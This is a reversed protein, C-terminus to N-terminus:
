EADKGRIKSGKGRVRFIKHIHSNQNDDSHDCDEAQPSDGDVVTQNFQSIVTLISESIDIDLELLPVIQNRLENSRHLAIGRVLLLGQVTDDGGAVTGDSGTGDVVLNGSLINQAGGEGTEANGQLRIGIQLGVLVEHLQLLLNGIDLVLEGGRAAVEVGSRALEVGGDLGERGVQQGAHKSKLFFRHEVEALLTM